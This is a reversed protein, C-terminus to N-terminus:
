YQEGFIANNITYGLVFLAIIIYFGVLVYPLPGNNDQVAGAINEVIAGRKRRFFRMRNAMAALFITGLLILYPTIELVIFGWNFQWPLADWPWGGRGEAGPMFM